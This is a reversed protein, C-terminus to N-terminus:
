DSELLEPNEYINGIVEFDNGYFYSNITWCVNGQVVEFASDSWRIKVYEEDENDQLIAIDGEYIEVGNKDKIGIYQMLEIDEFKLQFYQNETIVGVYKEDFNILEVKLIEKYKKDWVRFKIERM